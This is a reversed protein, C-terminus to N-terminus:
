GEKLRANLQTNIGFTPSSSDTVAFVSGVTTGGMGDPVLGSQRAVTEEDITSVGIGVSISFRSEGFRVQVPNTNTIEEVSEDKWLNRRYVAITVLTPENVLGPYLWENFPNAM